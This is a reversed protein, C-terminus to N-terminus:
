ITKRFSGSVEYENGSFDAVKGHFYGTYFKNTHDVETMVIKIPEPNLAWSVLALTDDAVTIQMDDVYIIQNITVNLGLDMYLQLINADFDDYFLYYSELQGAANTVPEIFIQNSFDVSFLEQQGDVSYQIYNDIDNCILVDGFTFDTGLSSFVIEDSYTLNDTDYLTMTAESDNCISVTRDFEGNVIPFTFTKSDLELNVLGNSVADFDCNVANGSIRRLELDPGGNIVIPSLEEDESFGNFSETHVLEGCYDLVKILFPENAPFNYFLYTGDECLCGGRQGITEGCVFIHYYAPTIEQGASRLLVQGSVNIAPGKTDVNWTSFHGVSGEYFAGVLKAEGEEVWYGHEEDYSWLPITAPADALMSQPVPFKLVAEEGEILNLENGQADLLEVTLMGYTSLAQVEGNEDIGSLDGVMNQNLDNAEPNIWDVYVEFAGTYPRGSTDVISNDTFTVTAESEHELTGGTSADLEGISNKEKLKVETYNFRDKLVGLRRFAQFMDPYEISIYASNGKNDVDQFLFNGDSDTTMIMQTACSLCTVEAGEIPQEDVDIIHGHISTTLVVSPEPFVVPDDELIPDDVNPTTVMEDTGCSFLISLLAIALLYSFRLSKFNNM